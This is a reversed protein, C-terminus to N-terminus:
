AYLSKLNKDYGALEAADTFTDEGKTETLRIRDQLPLMRIEFVRKGATARINYEKMGDEALTFELTDPEMGMQDKFYYGAVQKLKERDM